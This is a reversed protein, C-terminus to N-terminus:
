KVEGPKVEGVSTESLSKAAPAAKYRPPSDLCPDTPGPPPGSVEITPIVLASSVNPSDLGEAVHLPAVQVARQYEQPAHCNGTFPHTIRHWSCGGILMLMPLCVWVRGNTM